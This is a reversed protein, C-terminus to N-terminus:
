SSLSNSRCFIAQPLQGRGEPPVERYSGFLLELAELPLPDAPRLLILAPVDSPERTELAIGRVVIASHIQTDNPTVVVSAGRDEGAVGLHQIVDGVTLPETSLLSILDQLNSLM